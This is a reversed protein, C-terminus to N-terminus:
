FEELKLLRLKLGNGVLIMGNKGSKELKYTTKGEEGDNKISVTGNQHAWEGTKAIIRNRFQVFGKNNLFQWVESSFRDTVDQQSEIEYADAVVWQDMIWSNEHYALGLSANAKKNELFSLFCIFLVTAIIAYLFSNRQM